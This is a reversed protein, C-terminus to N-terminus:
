MDNMYRVSVFNEVHMERKFEHDFIQLERKDFNEKKSANAIIMM